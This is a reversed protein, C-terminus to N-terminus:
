SDLFSGFANSVWLIVKTRISKAYKDFFCIMEEALQNRTNWMIEQSFGQLINLCMEDLM